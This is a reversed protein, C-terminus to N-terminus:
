VQRSLLILGLGHPYQAWLPHTGYAVVAALITALTTLGLAIRM